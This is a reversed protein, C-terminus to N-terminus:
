FGDRGDRFRDVPNPRYRGTFLVKSGDIEVFRYVRKPPQGDLGEGADKAYKWVELTPVGEDIPKEFVIEAPEGYVVWVKGRDTNRGPLAGESFRKDAEAAREEFVQRPKKDFFGYGEARRAWFDDIFRAAEEDSALALYANVEKATAVDAVPGVLWHSYELGLLPNFLDAPDRPKRDKAAAAPVALLAAILLAAAVVGALDPRACSISFSKASRANM